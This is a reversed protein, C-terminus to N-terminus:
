LELDEGEIPEVSDKVPLLTQQRDGNIYREAENLFQAVQVASSETCEREGAEGDKPHDIRFFPSKMPHVKETPLFARRFLLQVSRTGGDTTSIAVGYVQVPDCWEGMPLEMVDSLVDSLQSLTEDFSALPAEKHKETIEVEAEADGQRVLTFRVFSEERVIKKIMM